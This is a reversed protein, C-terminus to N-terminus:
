LSIGVVFALVAVAFSDFFVFISNALIRAIRNSVCVSFSIFIRLCCHNRTFFFRRFTFRHPHAIHLHPALRKATGPESARMKRNSMPPMLSRISYTFSYIFHTRKDGRTVCRLRILIESRRSPRKAILKRMDRPVFLTWSRFDVISKIVIDCMSKHFFKWVFGNNEASFELPRNKEEM